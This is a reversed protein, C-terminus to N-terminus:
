LATGCDVLCSRIRTLALGSDGQERQPLFHDREELLGEFQDAQLNLAGTDRDRNKLSDCYKYIGKCLELGLSIFGTAASAAALEAM